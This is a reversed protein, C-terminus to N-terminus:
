ENPVWYRGNSIYIRGTQDNRIKRGFYKRAPFRKELEQVAFSDIANLARRLRLESVKKLAPNGMVPDGYKATDAVAKEYDDLAERFDKESVTGEGTDAKGSLAEQLGRYRRIKEEDGPAPVGGMIRLKLAALSDALAASPDYPKPKEGAARPLLGVKISDARDGTGSRIRGLALAYDSLKRPASARPLLGAKISDARDGLGERIRAIAKGYDTLKEPEYGKPWRGRRRFYAEAGARTYPVPM